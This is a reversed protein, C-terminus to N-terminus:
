QKIFTITKHKNNINLNLEYMGSTLESINIQSENFVNNLKGFVAVQGLTNYIEYAISISHLPNQIKLTLKDHAPNPGMTISNLIKIEEIGIANFPSSSAKCDDENKIYVTYYGYGPTTIDITQLTADPIASANYYWQYAFAPSSTLTNNLRTISPTAPTQAVKCTATGISKCNGVYGTCTYITTIGPTVYISAGHENNSWVYQMAGTASLIATTNGCVTASTLAIPVPNQVSLTNQYVNSSGNSNTARLSISYIGASNFNITPNKVSYVSPSSAAQSVTWSWATPTNSSLDNITATTNVCYTNNFASFMAEPPLGPTSYKSTKFVSRGYTAAVISQDLYQIEIDNVITNPLGQNYLVFSNMAANKYYVGVDMGVYIEHNSNNLYAISNCPINPLGASINHWSVGGNESMYVKQNSAYGSLTVFVHNPNTNNVAMKTIQASNLPLGTAISKWTTGGNETLYLNFGTSAYIFSPNSPAVSIYKFKSSNSITSLQTWNFGYNTSKFIQQYGCYFTSPVNPDQVIPAVWDGTGTLGSVINSFSNGGNSSYAFAGDVYSAVMNNNNNWDIFCDMGDGSYIKSWSTNNMLCTGNDQHGTIILSAQSVSLGLRYIQAINMAGNLTTLGTGTNSIRDLGGDSAIYVSSGNIYQIDHVDAHVLPKGGGGTWHTFLAWSQGGNTSKWTNVGGVIIENANTPSVGLAIDYWGQGGTDSGNASWGMVNPSSSKKVFTNGSDTSQYLGGFGNNDSAQLVYVYNANAPTVSLALRKATSGMITNGFATFSNVSSAGSNSKFFNTASVAYVVSTDNPKYEIDNFAINHVLNWTAGANNTRYLGDTTAALLTNPRLPNILLRGIKHGSSVAMTLGTAAWTVGSDTSKLIGISKTDGGDFDGTALYIINPNNPNIAMDSCGIVSLNDTNTTWSLGADNSVWLGGAPTGAYIINTNTPNFRIFNIRGAGTSLPSGMPGIASWNASAAAIGSKKSINLTVLYKQFEEYAKSPSAFEMNGTPYVRPSAYWEFRKFVNYGKGREYPKNKWYNNFSNQITYFNCKPNLLSDVWPQAALQFSLLFSLVIFTKKMFLM